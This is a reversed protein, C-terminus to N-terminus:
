KFSVGPFGVPGPDFDEAHTGRPVV